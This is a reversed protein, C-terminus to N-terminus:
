LEDLKFLLKVVIQHYASLNKEKMVVKEGAHAAAFARVPSTEATNAREDGGADGQAGRCISTSTINRSYENM